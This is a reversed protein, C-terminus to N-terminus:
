SLDYTPADGQLMLVSCNWGGTNPFNFTTDNGNFLAVAHLRLSGYAYGQVLYTAYANSNSGNITVIASFRGNFQLGIKTKGHGAQM